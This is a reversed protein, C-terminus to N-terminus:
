NKSADKTKRKKNWPQELIETKPCAGSFLLIRPM